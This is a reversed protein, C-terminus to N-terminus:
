THIEIQENDNIQCYWELKKIRRLIPPTQNGYDNTTSFLVFFERRPMMFDREWIHILINEIYEKEDSQPIEDFHEVFVMSNPHQSITTLYGVAQGLSTVKRCDIHYLNVAEAHCLTDIDESINRSYNDPVGVAVAFKTILTKDSKLRRLRPIIVNNQFDEWCQQDFARRLMESYTRNGIETESDLISM